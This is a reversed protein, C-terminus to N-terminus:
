ASRESVPKLLNTIALRLEIETLSHVLSTGVGRLMIRTFKRKCSQLVVNASNLHGQM